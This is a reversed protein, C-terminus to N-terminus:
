TAIAWVAALLREPMFHTHVDILASLGHRARFAAVRAVDTDAPMDPKM